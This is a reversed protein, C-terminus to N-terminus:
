HCSTEMVRSEMLGCIDDKLESTPYDGFSHWAFEILRTKHLTGQTHWCTSHLAQIKMILQIQGKLTLHHFHKHNTHQEETQTVSVPPGKPQMIPLNNLIIPRSLLFSFFDDRINKCDMYILFYVNTTVFFLITSQITIKSIQTYTYEM